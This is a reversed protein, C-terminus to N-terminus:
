WFRTPPIWGNFSMGRLVTQAGLVVILLAALRYLFLKMHPQLRTVLFGFSMMAPVTGLGFLAM